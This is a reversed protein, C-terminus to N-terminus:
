FGFFKAVFAEMCTCDDCLTYGSYNVSMEYLPPQTHEDCLNNGSYNVSAGYLALAYM